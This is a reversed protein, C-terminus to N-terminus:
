VYIFIDDSSDVRINGRHDAQATAADAATGDFVGGVFYSVTASTADSNVTNAVALRGDNSNYDGNWILAAGNGRTGNAGGFIIGSEDTATASGSNLLLFQDKINTNTTSITTLSGNVTLNGGVTANGTTEISAFTPTGTTGLSKITVASGSNGNQVLLAQGQTTNTGLSSASIIGSAIAYSIQNDSVTSTVGPGGTFTLTDNVLDVTDDSGADAGITLNTALGTLGSGDGKFSGTFSGTMVLNNAGTTAVINGSGNITTTTLNGSAGTVVGSSLSDVNINALHASSGSVIIKKWVAM